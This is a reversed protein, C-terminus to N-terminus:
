GAKKTKGWVRHETMWDEIIAAAEDLDSPLGRTRVEVGLRHPDLMVQSATVSDPRGVIRVIWPGAKFEVACIGHVALAQLSRTIEKKM